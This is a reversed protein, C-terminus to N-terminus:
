GPGRTRPKTKPVDQSIILVSEGEVIYRCSVFHTMQDGNADTYLFNAYAELRGEARFPRPRAM